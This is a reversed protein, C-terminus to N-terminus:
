HCYLEGNINRKIRSKLNDSAYNHPNYKEGMIKNVCKLRNVKVETQHIALKPLRNVKLFTNNTQKSIIDKFKKNEETCISGLMNLNLCEFNDKNNSTSGLKLSKLLKINTSNTALKANEDHSATSLKYNSTTVNPCTLLNDVTTVIISEETELRPVENSKFGKFGYGKSKTISNCKVSNFIKNKALKLSEKLVVNSDYSNFRRNSKKYIRDEDIYYYNKCHPHTNM